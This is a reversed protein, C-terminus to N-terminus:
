LKESFILIFAVLNKLSHFLIAPWISRTKYALWGLMLGLVFTMIIVNPQMHILGFLVSTVFIAMGVGFRKALPPLMFGRFIAEETVPAIIVLAIFALVVEINSSASAFSVIQEEELNLEPFLLRLILFAMILVVFFLITAVMLLGITRKLEFRRFGIARTSLGRRKIFYILFALASLRSVAYVLFNVTISNNDILYSLNNAFNGSNIIQFFGVAVAAVVIDLAFLLLLGLVIAEFWNYGRRKLPTSM